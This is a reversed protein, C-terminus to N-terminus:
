TPRTWGVGECTLMWVAGRSEDRAFDCKAGTLANAVAAATRAHLTPEDRGVNLVSTGCALAMFIILQDQMYTDVTAGTDLVRLLEEAAHRGPTNTDTASANSALICNTDTHAILTLGMGDGIASVGSTEQVATIDNIDVDEDLHQRLLRQAEKLEGKLADLKHRGSVFGRAEVRVVKGQDILQIPPLAKGTPLAGVRVSMRGGGKPYFGRAHELYDAPPAAPNDTGGKCVLVSEGKEGRANVLCPVVAQALLTCSGATRTDAEYEGVRLEGPRLTISESGVHAHSLTGNCINCVSQLALLHQPRLGPKSRGARIRHISLSKTTIAALATSVRLIQGGGELMSGDVVHDVSANAGDSSRSTLSHSPVPFGAEPISVGGTICTIRHTSSSTTILM